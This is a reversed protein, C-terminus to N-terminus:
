MKVRLENMEEIMLQIKGVDVERGMAGLVAEGYIKNLRKLVDTCYPQPLKWSPHLPMNGEKINWQLMEQVSFVIVHSNEAITQRSPLARWDILKSAEINVGVCIRARGAASFVTVIGDSALKATLFERAETLYAEIGSQHEIIYESRHEKDLDVCNYEVGRHARGWQREHYFCDYVLSQNNLFKLKIQYSQPSNGLRMVECNYDIQGANFAETRISCYVEYPLTNRPM